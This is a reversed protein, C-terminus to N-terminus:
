KDSYLTKTFKVELTETEGEPIVNLVFHVIEKGNISLPAIYYTADKEAIEIFELVKQQQLLNTMTGTVQAPFAGFKGTPRVSVNILNEYASRKIGHARAIDPQVFTSPFISFHVSHREFEQSNQFENATAVSAFLLLLLLSLKSQKKM